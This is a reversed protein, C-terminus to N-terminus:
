FELKQLHIAQAFDTSTSIGMSMEQIGQSMPGHGAFIITRPLAASGNGGEEWWNVAMHPWQSTTYRADVGECRITANSYTYAVDRLLWRFTIGGDNSIYPGGRYVQLERDRLVGASCNPAYGAEFATVLVQKGRAAVARLNPHSANVQETIPLCAATSAGM